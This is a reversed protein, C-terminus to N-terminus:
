FLGSVIGDATVDIQQAAPRAPLGPMTKIDGAIALVFGAGAVPRVERVELRWGSPAGLKGADHTFSYPTKAICVPADELGEEAMRDLARRAAPAFDVGEAGYVRTAIKEIKTALPDATEYVYRFTGLRDLQGAVARALAEGGEGGRAHVPAVVLTGGADTVISELLATEAATDSPFPNLAVICPLGYVQTVNHLHRRLNAAGRELAELDERGLDTRPVGGHMKLSRVTAVMVVVSPKLGGVRCKINLFKEAGLDAGFGAETVVIDALKLALRTAVLTNCGHAINAFPGGHVLAPTGELTQVLNPHIAERLLVAM